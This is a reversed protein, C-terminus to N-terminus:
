GGGIIKKLDDVPFAKIPPLGFEKRRRETLSTVRTSIGSELVADSNKRILAPAKGLKVCMNKLAIIVDVPRVDQPCRESCTYCNTCDWIESDPRILEDEFGLIAMLMILRPNFSESYIGAPCDAVCAGCQYCYNHRVGEAIANLKERFSFDIRHKQQAQLERSDRLLWVQGEGGINMVRNSCLAGADKNADEIM